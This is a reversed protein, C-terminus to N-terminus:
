QRYFFSYLNRLKDYVHRLRTGMELQTQLWNTGLSQQQQKEVGRMQGTKNTEKDGRRQEARREM